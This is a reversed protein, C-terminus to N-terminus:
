VYLRLRLKILGNFFSLPQSSATEINMTDMKIVESIQMTDSMTLRITFDNVYCARGKKVLGDARKPYTSGAINGNSDLIQIIQKGASDNNKTCSKKGKM